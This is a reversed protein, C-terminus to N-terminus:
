RSEEHDSGRPLELRVLSLTGKVSIPVAGGACALGGRSGTHNWRCALDERGAQRDWSVVSPLAHMQHCTASLWHSCNVDHTAM